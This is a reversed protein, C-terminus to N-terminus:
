LGGVTIFFCSGFGVLFIMFSSFMFATAKDKDYFIFVGALVFNIIAQAPYAFLFLSGFARNVLPVGFSFLAVLGYALFILFNIGVIMKFPSVDDQKQAVAPNQESLTIWGEPM